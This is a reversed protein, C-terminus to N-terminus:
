RKLVRSLEEMSYPKGILAKLGNKELQAVEEEKFFGSAVIIQATEKLERIRYFAEKGGMEPMIMDLIVKDIKDKNQKFVEVAEKGNEAMIVDYGLDELMDKCTLRIIEEDDVLLILGQGKELSAGQAQNKKRKKSLPLYVHFETGKGLDSEV